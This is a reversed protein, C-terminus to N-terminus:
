MGCEQVEVTFHKDVLARVPAAQPMPQKGCSRVGQVEPMGIISRGHIPELGTGQHHDTACQDQPEQGHQVDQSQRGAWPSRRLGAAQWIRHDISRLAYWTM